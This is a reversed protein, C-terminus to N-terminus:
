LITSMPGTSTNARRSIPRWPPPPPCSPSPGGARTLAVRWSLTRQLLPFSCPLCLVTRYMVNLLYLANSHMVFSKLMFWISIYFRTKGLQVDNFMLKYDVRDAEKMLRRLPARVKVYLEDKQISYLQKTELGGEALHNLVYKLSRNQQKKTLKEEPGYIPFVLVLDWSYGNMTRFPDKMSKRDELAQKIRGRMKAKWAESYGKLTKLMYAMLLSIGVLLLFTVYGPTEGLRRGHEPQGMLSAVQMNVSLIAEYFVNTVKEM